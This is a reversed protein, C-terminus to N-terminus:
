PFVSTDISVNEDNLQLVGVCRSALIFHFSDSFVESENTARSIATSLDHHNAINRLLSEVCATKIVAHWVRMLFCM